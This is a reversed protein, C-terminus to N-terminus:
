VSAARSKGSTHEIKIKYVITREAAKKIYERGYELYDRSYKILFLELARNKEEAFIEEAVGFVVVSEYVMSFSESLPQVNGVVCFSVKPQNRLLELKLGATAMHLYIEDADLAYSLPVGYAYEGGAVSLVGYMGEKLIVDIDDNGLQREKRRMTRFM